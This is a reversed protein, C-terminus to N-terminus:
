VNGPSGSASAVTAPPDKTRQGEAGVQSTAGSGGSTALASERARQAHRCVMVAFLRNMALVAEVVGGGGHHRGPAAAHPEGPWAALPGM